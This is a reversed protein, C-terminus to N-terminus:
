NTLFSILSDERHENSASTRFVPAHEREGMKSCSHYNSRDLSYSKMTQFETSELVCKLFDFLHVSIQSHKWQKPSEMRVPQAQLLTQPLDGFCGRENGCFWPERCLRHSYENGVRESVRKPSDFCVSNEKQSQKGMQLIQIIIRAELGNFTRPSGLHLYKIHIFPLFM